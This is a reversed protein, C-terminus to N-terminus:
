FRFCDHFSHENSGSALLCCAHRVFPPSALLSQALSQPGFHSNASLSQVSGLKILPGYGDAKLVLIRNGFSGIEQVGLGKTM